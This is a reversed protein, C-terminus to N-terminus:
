RKTKKLQLHKARLCKKLSNKKNLMAKISYVQDENREGETERLIKYM